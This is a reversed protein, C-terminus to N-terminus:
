DRIGANYRVYVTARSLNWLGYSGISAGSLRDFDSRAKTRGLVDLKVSASMDNRSVAM